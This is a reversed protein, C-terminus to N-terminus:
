IVTDVNCLCRFIFMSSTAECIEEHSLTRVVKKDDGVNRDSCVVGTWWYVMFMLMSFSSKCPVKKKEYHMDASFKKRGM